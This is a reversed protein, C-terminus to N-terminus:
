NKLSLNSREKMTAPGRSSDFDDVTSVQEKQIELAIELYRRFNREAEKLEQETLTPYLKRFTPGDQEQNEM